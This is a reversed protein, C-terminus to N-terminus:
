GRDQNKKGMTLDDILEIKADEQIHRRAIEYFFRKPVMDYLDFLENTVKLPGKLETGAASQLLEETM